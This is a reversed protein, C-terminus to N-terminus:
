EDSSWGYRRRLIRQVKEDAEILESDSMKSRIINIIGLNAATSKRGGQGNSPGLSSAGTSKPEKKPEKYPEAELKSPTLSPNRPPQVRYDLPDSPKEPLRAGVSKSATVTYMIPSTASNLLHKYADVPDVCGIDVLWNVLPETKTKDFRGRRLHAMVEALRSVGDPWPRQDEASVPHIAYLTSRGERIYCSIHGGATLRKIAERATTERCRALRTLMGRGIWTLPVADKACNALVILVMAESCITVSSGMARKMLKLGM